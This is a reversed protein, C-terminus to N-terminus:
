LGLPPSRRMRTHILLYGSHEAAWDRVAAIAAESSEAEGCEAVGTMNDRSIEWRWVQKDRYHHWILPWLPKDLVSRTLKDGPALVISAHGPHM